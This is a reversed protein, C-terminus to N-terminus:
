KSERVITATGSNLCVKKVGDIDHYTTISTSAEEKTIIDGSELTIYDDIVAPSTSCNVDIPIRQQALSDAVDSTTMNTFSANDSCASFGITILTIFTTTKLLTHKM